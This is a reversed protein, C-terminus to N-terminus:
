WPSSEKQVGFRQMYFDLAEYREARDIGVYRPSIPSRVTGGRPHQAAFAEMASRSTDTFPQAALEYIREVTAIDGAMFEHFLIDISQDAPLLSRDSM